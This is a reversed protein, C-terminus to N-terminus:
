TRLSRPRRALTLVASVHGEGIAHSADREQRPGRTV